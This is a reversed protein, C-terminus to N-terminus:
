SHPSGLNLNRIDLSIRPSNLPTLNPVQGGSSHNSQANPNNIHNPMFIPNEFFLLENNETNNGSIEIGELRKKAEEFATNKQNDPVTQETEEFEEENEWFDDDEQAQLLFSSLGIFLFGIFRLPNCRYISPFPFRNSTPPNM